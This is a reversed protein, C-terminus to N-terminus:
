LTSICNKNWLTVKLSTVVPLIVLAASFAWFFFYSHPVEAFVDCGAAVRPAAVKKGEEEGEGVGAVGRGREREGMHTDRRRSRSRGRVGRTDEGWRLKKLPSMSGQGVEHM